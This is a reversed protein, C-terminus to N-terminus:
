NRRLRRVVKRLQVRWLSEQKNWHPFPERPVPMGLFPCLQDFGDGDLIRFVLLDDPRDRFYDRVEQNHRRYRDLFLDPDFDQRGYIAEHMRHFVPRDDWRFKVRGTTFLWEASRLWGAEDRETHVFKAGPFRRDLEQYILPIPNDTFADFQELIPHDRDDFLEFPADRTALGLVKLAKALSTTATRQMGTGFVKM